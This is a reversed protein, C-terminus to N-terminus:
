QNSQSPNRRRSDKIHYLLGDTDIYWNVADKQIVEAARADDQLKGTLVYDIIAALDPSTRHLSSLDPATTLTAMSALKSTDPTASLQETTTTSTQDDDPVTTIM